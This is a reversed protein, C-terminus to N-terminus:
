GGSATSASRDREVRRSALPVGIAVCYLDDGSESRVIVSTNGCLEPRTSELEDALRRASAYATLPADFKAGRPDAVRQEGALDFYFRLM